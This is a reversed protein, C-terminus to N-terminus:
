EGFYDRMELYSEYRRQDIQGAKVAEKIACGPEHQHTCNSGFKCKGLYSRLDPMFHALDTDEVDWLKFTRVGPTDIVSGGFELDFMEMHSTTHRGESNFKNIELVRLGLDPQIANLLSTKGVGSKGWLVSVKNKLAAKIAEIGQGNNSSTLLVPYGLKEYVKIEQPIEFDPTLDLKTFCILPPIEAAEATLLYRDLLDWSPAPNAIPMVSIIQDINAAIVQEMPQSGSKMRRNGDMAPRSLKNRRPLVEVIMGSADDLLTFEVQDGVAIPDVSEIDKVAVVRRSISSPDATPYLLNKRLKTSISCPIIQGEVRVFYQGFTKKIVLGRQVLQSEIPNQNL